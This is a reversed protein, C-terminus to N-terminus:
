KMALAIGDTRQVVNHTPKVSCRLRQQEATQSCGIVNLVLLACLVTYYKFFRSRRSERFGLLTLFVYFIWILLLLLTTFEESEPGGRSPFVFWLLGAPFLWFYLLGGPSTFRTTFGTVGWAILLLRLRHFRPIKEGAETTSTVENSDNCNKM